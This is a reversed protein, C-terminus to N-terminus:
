DNEVEYLITFVEPLDYHEIFTLTMVGNVVHGDTAYDLYSVGCCVPETNLLDTIYDEVARCVEYDHIPGGCINGRIVYPATIKPLDVRFDM